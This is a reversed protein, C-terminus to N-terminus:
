CLKRCKCPLENTQIKPSCKAWRQSKRRRDSVPNEIKIWEPKHPQLHEFKNWRPSQEGGINLDVLSICQTKDTMKTLLIKMKDELIDCDEILKSGDEKWTFDGCYTSRDGNFQDNKANRNTRVAQVFFTMAFFISLFLSQQLVQRMIVTSDFASSSNCLTHIM